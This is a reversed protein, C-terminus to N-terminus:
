QYSCDPNQYVSYASSILSVGTTGNLHPRPKDPLAMCKLKDQMGKYDETVAGEGLVKIYIPKM